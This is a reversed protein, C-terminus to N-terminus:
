CLRLLLLVGRRRTQDGVRRRRQRWQGRAGVVQLGDLLNSSKIERGKEFNPLSLVVSKKLCELLLLLADLLM